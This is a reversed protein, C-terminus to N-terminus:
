RCARVQERLVVYDALAQETATGDPLARVERALQERFERSYEKVPPCSSTTACSAILLSTALALVAKNLKSRHM